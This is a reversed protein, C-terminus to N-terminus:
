SQILETRLAVKKEHETMFEKIEPIADLYHVYEKGMMTQVFDESAEAAALIEDRKKKQM